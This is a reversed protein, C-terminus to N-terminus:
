LLFSIILFPFLRSINLWCVSVRHVIFCCFQVLLFPSFRNFCYAFSSLPLASVASSKNSKRLRSVETAIGRWQRRRCRRWRRRQQQICEDLGFRLKEFEWSSLGGENSAVCIDRWYKPSIRLSKGRSVEFDYFKDLQYLVGFYIRVCYRLRM